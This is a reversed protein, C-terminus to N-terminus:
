TLVLKRKRRIVGDWGCLALVRMRYNQFNRFGFARRSIMEMKNHLGETISNTKSFRWMRGVENRWSSLTEGLTKLAEIPSNKLERIMHLFDHVALWTSQKSLMKKRMLTHLKQKFEWITKLHPYEIFYKELKKIQELNLKDEHRRMLSLLGRNKRGVPDFQQWTKLFQHQILRVVHFRDAVIMANPFHKKVISRYTSSLDMVVVRVRHKEPLKRLYGELSLESRGLVVDFVTHNKLDVFTTAYGDKKTFFHEDIGLVMPTRKGQLDGYRAKIFGRYWREVTAHSIDHTSALHKQTVGGHHREFVEMRFAETSRKKPLTGQLRLNFYRKCGQCHFKHSIFRVRVLDNGLRVHRLIRPFSAKIRTHSHHCRPCPPRNRLEGQILIRQNGYHTQIHNLDPLGLIEQAEPPM